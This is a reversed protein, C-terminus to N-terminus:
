QLNGLVDLISPYTNERVKQLDGQPTWVAQSIDEELQPKCELPGNYSMVYWCTQKVYLQGKIRYTHYTPPLQRVIRPSVIGCEEEVERVACADMAEGKERKGKPLDWKGLRFITLIDGNPNLVLGGAAEVYKFLTAVQQFVKEPEETLLEYSKESALQDFDTMFSELDLIDSVERTNIGTKNTNKSCIQLFRDGFYIKYM